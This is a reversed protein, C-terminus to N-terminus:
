GGWLLSVYCIVIPYRNNQLHKTISKWDIDTSEVVVNLFSSSWFLLAICVFVDLSDDSLSDFTVESVADPLTITSLIIIMVISQFEKLCCVSHCSYCHM